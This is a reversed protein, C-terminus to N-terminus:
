ARKIDRQDRQRELEQLTGINELYVEIMYLVQKTFDRRQATALEQVQDALEKPFRIGKSVTTNSAM